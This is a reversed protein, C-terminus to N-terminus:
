NPQNINIKMGRLKLYWVIYWAVLSMNKQEDFSQKGDQEKVEERQAKAAQLV